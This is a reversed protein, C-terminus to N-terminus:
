LEIYKGRLWIGKIKDRVFTNSGEAMIRQNFLPVMEETIDRARLGSFFFHVPILVNPQIINLAICRARGEHGYVKMKMNKEGPNNVDIDLFPSGVGYGESILEVIKKASEDRDAKKAFESFDRPYMMGVFGRYVVNRNLPVSGLGSDRICM